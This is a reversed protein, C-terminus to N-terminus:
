STDQTKMPTVNESSIQSGTGVIDTQLSENLARVLNV